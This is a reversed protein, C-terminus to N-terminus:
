SIRTWSVLKSTIRLGPAIYVDDDIEGAMRAAASSEAEGDECIGFDSTDYTTGDELIYKVDVRLIKKESM